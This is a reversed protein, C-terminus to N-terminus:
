PLDSGMAKLDDIHEPCYVHVALALFSSHDDAPSVRTGDDWGLLSAVVAEFLGSITIERCLAKALEPAQDALELDSDHAAARLYMARCDDDVDATLPLRYHAPCGPAITADPAVEEVATTTSTAPRTTTTTTTGATTTDDDGCGAAAGGLVLLALLLTRIPRTM